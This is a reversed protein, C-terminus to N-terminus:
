QGPVPPHDAKWQMARRVRNEVSAAVLVHTDGARILVSGEAYKLPDLEIALPRLAAAARGDARPPAPANM